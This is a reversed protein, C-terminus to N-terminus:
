AAQRRAVCLCALYLAGVVFDFFTRSEGLATFCSVNDAFIPNIQGIGGVAGM